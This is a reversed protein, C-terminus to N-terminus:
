VGVRSASASLYQGGNSSSSSSILPMQRAGCRVGARRLRDVCADRAQVAVEFGKQSDLNRIGAISTHAYISTAVGGYPALFDLYAEREPNRFLTDGVDVQRNRLLPEVNPWDGAHLEVKVGTKKEWLRWVDVSYGELEGDANRFVFPPYNQDLSVRLPAASALPPLIFGSLLLAFTLLARFFSLITSM